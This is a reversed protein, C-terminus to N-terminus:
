AHLCIFLFLSFCLCIYVQKQPMSAELDVGKFIMSNLKSKSTSSDEKSLIGLSRLQDELCVPATEVEVEVEVMDYACDLPILM